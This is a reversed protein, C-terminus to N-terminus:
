TQFLGNWENTHKDKAQRELEELENKKSELNTKLPTLEDLEVKQKEVQAKLEELYKAGAKALEARKAYGAEQIVRMAREEERLKEGMEQCVNKCTAGSAWEDSGDCCDLVFYKSIM